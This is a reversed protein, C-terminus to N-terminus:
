RTPAPAPPAPTPPPSAPTPPASSGSADPVPQGAVKMYRTEMDELLKEDAATLVKRKGETLVQPLGTGEPTTPLMVITRNPSASLTKYVQVARMQVYLPDLTSSIIRQQKAVKLAELVRIAAEKTTKALVFDQQQLEQQKAIKRSIADAVEKPFQIQGIDVSEITMPTGAFEATLQEAIMKRVKPTELQIDTASVRTVMERVITRLREQVNWQYWKDGGWQEVIEKVSGDKLKIRTNVEFTVNLNDHTLLQFDEKYSKARMDVNETYLRWSAGTTAPGRLAQRFEMKGFLLPENYIYGEYGQPVEPNTCAAALTLALISLHIKHTM